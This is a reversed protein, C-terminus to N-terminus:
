EDGGGGADEGGGGGGGDGYCAPNCSHSPDTVAGGVFAGGRVNDLAGRDVHRLTESNLSLHKRNSSPKMSFRM